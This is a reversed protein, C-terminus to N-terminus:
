TDVGTLKLLVDVVKVQDNKRGINMKDKVFDLNDM